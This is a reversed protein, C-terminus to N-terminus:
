PLYLRLAWLLAYQADDSQTALVIKPSHLMKKDLTSADPKLSTLLIFESHRQSTAPIVKKILYRPVHPEGAVYLNRTWWKQQKAEAVLVEKWAPRGTEWSCFPRTKLPGRAKRNALLLSLTSLTEIRHRGAVHTLSIQVCQYRSESRTPLHSGILPPHAPTPAQLTLSPPLRRTVHTSNPARYRKTM